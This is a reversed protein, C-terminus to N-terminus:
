LSLSLYNKVIEIFEDLSRCLKYRYGAVTARIEFERQSPTQKRKESKMEIFLGHYGHSARMLLLDAVGALAGEARLIAGTIADRNGGNPIAFITLKPYQLRFWKVCAQQLRSEPNNM